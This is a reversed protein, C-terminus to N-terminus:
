QEIDEHGDRSTSLTDAYNPDDAYRANHLINGLGYNGEHCAYEYLPQDPKTMPVLATWPDSWTAPDDLTIEYHVTGPDVRTFREALRLNPTAGRFGSKSSFNTTEVVLTDGEYYGRADGHWQAMDSTLLPRGDLPILRANHIMESVIAVHTPTQFIQVNNNYAGPFRPMGFTLCREGLGRFEAADAGHRQRADRRAAARKKATDTTAPIRGDPPDVILSTRRDDTMERGYDLWWKAHVSPSLDYDDLRAGQEQEYAAAEEATLTAKNGFERPRELPTMTRYDWVGQLDPAGWATRPVIWDTASLAPVAASRQDQAWTTTSQLWVFALLVLLIRCTGCSRIDVLVGEFRRSLWSHSLLSLM